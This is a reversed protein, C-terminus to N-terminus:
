RHADPAIPPDGCTGGASPDSRVRLCFDNGPHLVVHRVSPRVSGPLHSYFFCILVPIWKSVVRGGCAALPFHLYFVSLYTFQLVYFLNAFPVHHGVESVNAHLSREENM